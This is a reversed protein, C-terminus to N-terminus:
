VSEGLIDITVDSLTFSELATTLCPDELTLEITATAQVQTYSALTYDIPVSVTASVEMSHSGAMSRDNTVVSLIQDAFTTFDLSPDV